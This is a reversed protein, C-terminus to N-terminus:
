QAWDPDVLPQESVENRFVEVMEMACRKALEDEGVEVLFYVLRSLGVSIGNDELDGLPETRSTEVIFERWKEPYEQAVARVRARFRDDSSWWRDWGRSEVMARVLWVYARSRGERKRSIEFATDLAEVLDFRVGDTRVLEDFDGLADAHRGQADWYALWQSAAAATRTLSTSERASQVFDSLHGPDFGSVDPMERSEDSSFSSTGDGEEPLPGDRGTLRGLTKRISTGDTMTGAAEWATNFEGPSILTELLIRGTESEAPIMETWTKALEEARYWEQAAILEAYLAPVREPFLDAIGQHLESRAHRTGDGDTYDTIAEIEKALSLFTDRAEQDGQDAFLRLASLVEFVFVDKRNGYALLCDAVRRLEERCREHLRHDLAFRAAKAAIAARESFEVVRDELDTAVLELLAEAGKASHVPVPRDSFTELWPEMSWLPSGSAARVDQSGIKPAGLNGTGLLCLDVAIDQLALRVGVIASRERSSPVPPLSITFTGYIDRLTPWRRGTLWGSGIEGALRELARMASGLWTGNGAEGLKARPGAVSGSLATALSTFFVGYGARRVAHALGFDEQINWLHSVDAEGLCGTYEGTKLLDLCGCAPGDAALLGPKASPRIGELCLAALVDRDLGYASRRSGMALVNHHNGVRLSETTYAEILGEAGAGEAFAIVRDAREEPQRAMVRVVADLYADWHGQDDTSAAAAHRRNLEDIVKEGANAPVGRGFNAVAPLEETELGPLSDWLVAHLDQDRSLAQSTEWFSGWENSQYKRANLARTKLCRLRILRPLDFTGLAAEEARNLIYVLQDVPYGSVIWDISWDRSPGMVLDTPDGLDARMVWLWARRWYKPSEEELWKLVNEALSLFAQRHDPRDRLFAFLSGHFPVVSAKRCDLLHGIEELVQWWIVDATLCRGLGLSPPSFKLGALLHLARKAGASLGIWLSEYYDEIEGSPCAPLQLVAEVTLPEGSKLLAELSYVLHLPLGASHRHLASGLEDIVEEYTKVHSEAVRLRDGAAHSALWERVATVSMTPLETWQHKPLARLLAQPLHNDEVRQTGVLLRVGEPLPLLADFLLEMPALDRKDRSVHDLGDVVVVLRRGSRRVESAAAELADALGMGQPVDLLGADALQKVLSREIAFYSFRGSGREDLRLFYHHRICVVNDQEALESVCHSLYTSKGRGPPGWLVAVGDTTTAEAIFEQHFADDPVRYNPPVAFDQRLAVPRDRAFVHLLHFHRIKGDPQPANKRMAWHRVEQRFYAWGNKDTDHELQSRLSEEYDDYRPMSHMFEFAEFFERSAEESGIQDDITEKTVSTLRQYDVRSGNLCRAFESDPVRDTKLMAQALRGDARHALATKAWKQLLSTGNPKRRTLWEWSLSLDPRLPDPTFKVQTLELQGDKRCAVIDDIAQYAADEAEVQVWEYLDRDRLFRILVEVAVLDQYELGGRPIATSKFDHGDQIAM